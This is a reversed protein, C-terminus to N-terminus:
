SWSRARRSFATTTSRTPRSPGRRGTGPHRRVGLRDLGAGRPRRDRQGRRGRQPHRRRLSWARRRDTRLAAPDNWIAAHRGRGPPHRALCRRVLPAYTLDVYEHGPAVVEAGHARRVRARPEIRRLRHRRHPLDRKVSAVAGGDSAVPRGERLSRGAALGIVLPARADPISVPPTARDQGREVFAEWARLYSPVYREIFFYPAAVSRGRRPGSSGTHAPPNESAAM